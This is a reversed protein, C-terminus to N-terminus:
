VLGTMLLPVIPSRSSYLAGVNTSQRSSGVGVRSSQAHSLIMGIRKEDTPRPGVEAVSGETCSSRSDPVVQRRVDSLRVQCVAKV